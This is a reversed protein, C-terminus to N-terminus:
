IETVSSLAKNIFLIQFLDLFTKFLYDVDYFNSLRGVEWSQLKEQEDCKKNGCIFQGIFLNFSEPM